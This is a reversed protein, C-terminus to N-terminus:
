AEKWFEIISYVEIVGVGFARGFGTTTRSSQCRHQLEFVKSEAITFKGEIFSRTQAIDLSSAYAVTGIIEDTSDTINRLKTKHANVNSAPAHAKIRYTGAALTIQNSVLSAHGGTDTVKVTLDRTRWIASAFSGGSLANAKEDRILIYDEAAGGGGDGTEGVPKANM